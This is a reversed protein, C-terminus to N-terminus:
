NTRIWFYFILVLAWGLFMFFFAIPSDYSSLLKFGPVTLSLLLFWGWGWKPKRYLPSYVFESSIESGDKDAPVDLSPEIETTISEDEDSKEPYEDTNKSPLPEGDDHISGRRNEMWEGCYRCKIADDQIEEACYPCKKM